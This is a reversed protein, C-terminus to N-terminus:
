FRGGKASKEGLCHWIGWPLFAALLSVIVEWLISEAFAFQFILWYEAAVLVGSFIGFRVWANERYRAPNAFLLVMSTMSYLLFPYIPMSAGHSLLLKAYADLTGSQWDPRDPFSIGFCIFPLIVGTCLQLGCVPKSSPFVNGHMGQPGSNSSSDAAGGANM